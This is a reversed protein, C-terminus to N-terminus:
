PTGFCKLWVVVARGPAGEYPGAEVVGLEVPRPLRGGASLCTPTENDHWSRGDSWDAGAVIWPGDVEAIRLRPGAVRKGDFGIATGTANVTVGNGRLVTVESPGGRRATWGGIVVVSVAIAVALVVRQAVAGAPSRTTGSKM